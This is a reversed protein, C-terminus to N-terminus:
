PITPDPTTPQPLEVTRFFQDIMKLARGLVDGDISKRIYGAVNQRYAKAVDGPADSTSLVFVVLDTLTAENRITDLFEHGNMRPMHLDLLVVRPRGLPARGEDGRLIALAEIGDRAITVPHSIDSKRMARRFIDVDAESDDVLLINFPRAPLQHAALNSDTEIANAQLM